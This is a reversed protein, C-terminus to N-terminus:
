QKRHCHYQSTVININQRKRLEARRVQADSQAIDFKNGVANGSKEGPSLGKVVFASKVRYTPKETCILWKEVRKNVVFQYCLLDGGM